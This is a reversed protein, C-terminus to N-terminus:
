VSIRHFRFQHWHNKCCIVRSFAASGCITRRIAAEAFRVLMAWRVSDAIVSMALTFHGVRRFRSNALTLETTELWYRLSKNLRHALTEDLTLNKDGIAGSTMFVPDDKRQQFVTPNSFSLDLLLVFLGCM